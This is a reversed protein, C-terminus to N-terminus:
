RHHSSVQIDSPHQRRDPLFGTDSIKLEVVHGAKWEGEEFRFWRDILKGDDTIEFTNRFEMTRDSFTIQGYMLIKGEEKKVHGHTITGKNNIRFVAIEKKGPDWYLYGESFNNLDEVYSSFKIAKGDWIVDWRRPLEIMKESDLAKLYGVWNKNVLPELIELNKDLIQGIAANTFVALILVLVLFLSKNQKAM